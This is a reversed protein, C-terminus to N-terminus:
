FTKLVFNFIFTKNPFIKFSKSFDMCLCHISIRDLMLFMNEWETWYYTYLIFIFIKWPLLSAVKTHSTLIKSYQHLSIPFTSIFSYIIKLAMKNDVYVYYSHCIVKLKHTRNINIKHKNNYSGWIKIFMMFVLSLSPKKTKNNVRM